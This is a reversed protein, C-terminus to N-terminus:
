IYCYSTLLSLLQLINQYSNQIILQFTILSNISDDTPPHGKPNTFNEQSIKEDM